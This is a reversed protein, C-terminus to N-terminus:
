TTTARTRPSCRTPNTFFADPIPRISRRSHTRSRRPFAASRGRRATDYWDYRLGGVVVVDGLDLRDEVFANWRIPKELYVDSFIQDTLRFHSYNDIDYHTFEGGLKLRNYRDVQWDLNAKGIYRDRRTCCWAAAAAASGAASEPFWTM